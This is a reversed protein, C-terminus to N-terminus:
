LFPVTFFDRSSVSSKERERVFLFILISLSIRPLIARTTPAARKIDECVRPSLNVASPRKCWRTKTACMIHAVAKFSSAPFSPPPPCFCCFSFRLRLLTLDWPGSRRSPNNRSILWPQQVIHTQWRQAQIPYDYDWLPCFMTGRGFRMLSFKVVIGNPANRGHCCIYM